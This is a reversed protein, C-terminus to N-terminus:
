IHILSLGEHVEQVDIREDSKQCGVGEEVLRIAVLVTNQVKQVDGREDCNQGANALGFHGLGRAIVERM